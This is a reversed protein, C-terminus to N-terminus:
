WCQEPQDCGTDWIEPLKHYVFYKFVVLMIISVKNLEFSVTPTVSFDEEKEISEKWCQM